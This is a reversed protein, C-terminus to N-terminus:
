KEPKKYGVVKKIFFDVGDSELVIYATNLLTGPGLDSYKAFGLHLLLGRMIAGHSVALITKGMYTAAVERLFTLMRAIIEDYTEYSPYIRFSRIDKENLSKLKDLMIRNDELYDKVPKGDYVGFNRERLLKATNIALKRELNIIEATRQARGLDSAFVADFEIDKLEERVSEAQKIGRPTLPSDAWGQMIEKANYDTEGHRVLYILAQNKM